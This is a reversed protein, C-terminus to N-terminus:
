LERATRGATVDPWTSPISPTLIKGWYWFYWLSDKVHRLMKSMPGEAKSGTRLFTHQPNKDGKFTWRRPRTQLRSEQTWRSVCQCSCWRRSWYSPQKGLAVLPRGWYSDTLRDIGSTNWITNWFRSAHVNLSFRSQHRSCSGANAELVDSLQQSISCLHTLPWQSCTQVRSVAAHMFVSTSLAASQHNTQKYRPWM